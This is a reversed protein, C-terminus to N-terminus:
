QWTPTVGPRVGLARHFRQEASSPGKNHVGAQALHRCAASAPGSKLTPQHSAICHTAVHNNQRVGAKLERDIQAIRQEEIRLTAHCALPRPGLQVRNADVAGRIRALAPRRQRGRKELIDEEVANVDAGVGDNPGCLHAGLECACTAAVRSKAM